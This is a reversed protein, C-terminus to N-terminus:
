KIKARMDNREKRKKETREKKKKKNNSKLEKVNIFRKVCLVLASLLYKEYKKM